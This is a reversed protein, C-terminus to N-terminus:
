LLRFRGGALPRGSDVAAGRNGSFLGRRCRGPRSPRGEVPVGTSFVRRLAGPPTQRLPIAARWPRADLHFLKRKRSRLFPHGDACPQGAQARVTAPARAAHVGGRGGDRTRGSGALRHAPQGCAKRHPRPLTRHHPILNGDMWKEDQPINGQLLAARFAAGDPQTWDHGRLLAGASILLLASIPLTRPARRLSLTTLWGAILAGALTVGLVGGLPALGALPSDVQSYGLQLWPLGTLVWERLWEVLLWAAPAAFALRRWGGESLWATLAGAIAPFLAMALALLLAAIVALPLPLGGFEALSVRVWFLGFGFQGAGYVWGLFFARRPSEDRWLLFLVGLCLPGLFWFGFPAFALVSASGASFATLPRLLHLHRQLSPHKM